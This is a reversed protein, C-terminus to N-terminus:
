NEPDTDGLNPRSELFNLLNLCAEKRTTGLLSQPTKVNYNVYDTAWKDGARLFGIERGIILEVRDMLFELDLPHLSLEPNSKLEQEM